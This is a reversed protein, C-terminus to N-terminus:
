EQLYLKVFLDIVFQLRMKREHIIEPTYQFPLAKSLHITRYFDYLSLYTDLLQMESSTDQLFLAHITQSNQSDIMRYYKKHIDHQLQQQLDQSITLALHGLPTIEKWMCWSDPKQLLSNTQRVQYYTACYTCIAITACLNWKNNWLWSQITISTTTAHDWISSITPLHMSPWQISLVHEVSHHVNTTTTQTSVMTPSSSSHATTGGYYNNNITTSPPTPCSAHILQTFCYFYLIISWKTRYIM